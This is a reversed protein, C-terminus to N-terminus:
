YAMLCWGHYVGSDFVWAFERQGAGSPPKEPEDPTFVMLPSGYIEIKLVM